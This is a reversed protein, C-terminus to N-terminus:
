LCRGCRELCGTDGLWEWVEGCVNRVEEWNSSTPLVVLRDHRQTQYTLFLDYVIWTHNFCAGKPDLVLLYQM